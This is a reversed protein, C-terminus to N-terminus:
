SACFDLAMSIIATKTFRSSSLRSLSLSLSLSLPPSCRREPRKNPPLKVLLIPFTRDSSLFLSPSLPLFHSAAFPDAVLDTGPRTLSVPRAALEGRAVNRQTTVRRKRRRRHLHLHRLCCCCCRPRRRHCRSSFDAIRRRNADRTVHIGQFASAPLSIQQDDFLV